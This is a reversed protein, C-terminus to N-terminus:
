QGHKKALGKKKSCWLILFANDSFYLILLLTDLHQRNDVGCLTFSVAKKCASWKTELVEM